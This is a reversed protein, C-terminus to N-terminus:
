GVGRVMHLAPHHGFHGDLVLHCLPIGGHMVALQQPIMGQMRHLEPNLVIPTKERNKRGRPRGPRRPKANNTPQPSSPHANTATAANETETRRMHEVRIPYARRENLSLWSWTLCSLGPVPKGSLSAFWRDLGYTKTGAKTVV